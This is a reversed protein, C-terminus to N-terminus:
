NNDNNFLDFRKITTKREGLLIELILLLIAIAAFIQFRSEYDKFTQTEIETKNMKNIEDLITKLSSNSNSARVYIGDGDDAINKLLSENFRSIVTHGEGDKKYGVRVNNKFVPIPAGKTTGMGITYVKIGEKAAEKAQEIAGEEHDEGDTIIIIAKNREKNDNESEKFTTRGMEIASAISTGQNSIFDTNVSSLFM